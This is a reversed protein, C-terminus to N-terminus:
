VTAHHKSEKRLKIMFENFKKTEEANLITGLLSYKELFTNSGVQFLIAWSRPERETTLRDILDKLALAVTSFEEGRLAEINEM